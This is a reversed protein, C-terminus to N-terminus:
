DILRLNDSRRLGLVVEGGRRARVWTALGSKQLDYGPSRQM